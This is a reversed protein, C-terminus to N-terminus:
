PIVTGHQTNKYFMETANTQMDNTSKLLMKYSIGLNIILCKCISKQATNM